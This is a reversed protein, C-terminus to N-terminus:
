FFMIIIIIMMIIRIFVCLGICLVYIINSSDIQEFLFQHFMVFMCIVVDKGQTICLKERDENVWMGRLIWQGPKM